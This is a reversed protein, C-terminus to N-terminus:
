EARYVGLGTPMDICLYEGSVCARGAHQGKPATNTEDNFTITQRTQGTEGSLLWVNCGGASHTEHSAILVHDRTLTFTPVFSNMGGPSRLVSQWVPRTRGPQTLDFKQVALGNVSPWWGSRFYSTAQAPQGGLVLLSQKAFRAEVAVLHHEKIRDTELTALLQGNVLSFLEVGGEQNGTGVAVRGLDAGLLARGASAGGSRTWLPSYPQGIDYASLDGDALVVLMGSPSVLYELYKEARWRGMLRGDSIRICSLRKKEDHRLFVVGNHAEIPRDPKGDGGILEVEWEKAGSNIDMSVVKGRQGAVILKGEGATMGVFGSIGLEKHKKPAWARKATDVSFGCVHSDTALALVKDGSGRAVMVGAPSQSRHYQRSYLEQDIEVLGMWTIADEATEASCDVAILRNDRLALPQGNLKATKGDPGCLLAIVDGGLMVQRRFEGSTPLSSQPQPNADKLADLADISKLVERVTGKVEAFQIKADLDPADLTQVTVNVARPQNRKHFVVAQAVIARNREAGETRNILDSLFESARGLRTPAQNPDMSARRYSAEAASYIAENAHKSNPWRQSIAYLANPDGQTKAESLAEAAQKDFESYIDRGHKKILRRIYRNAITRAEATPTGADFRVGGRAKDGIKLDVIRQDGYEAALEQAAKLAETPQNELAYAIRLKMHAKDSTSRAYKMAERFCTVMKERDKHAQNGRAVYARYLDNRLQALLASDDHKEAEARTFQLDDLAEDLRGSGMALLARRYLLDLRKEVSDAQKARLTLTRRGQDYDTYVSVGSSNAAVLVGDAAVLNGLVGEDVVRVSSSIQYTELDLRVLRGIGSAFVAEPTVAPRGHIDRVDRADFLERGDLVNLVRLRNGSLLIRSSDLASLHLQGEPNKQWVPQGNQSNLAMIYRGDAPMCIIRGRAAIIPNAPKAIPNSDFAQPQTSGNNVESDYQYAWVSQGTQADLAIVAGANTLVYVKGDAVAPPTGLSLYYNLDYGSRPQLPPMQCVTREWHLKGTQAEFCLLKYEQIYSALVYLKGDEYTPASIFKCANVVDTEGEENGALWVEKGEQSLSLAILSSTDAENEGEPQGFHSRRTRPARFDFVGFVMGGGVTLAHRRIDRVRLKGPAGYSSSDRQQKVDFTRWGREGMEDGATGSRLDRAIIAEDTQYIVLGNKVVPHIVSPVVWRKRDGSKADLYTVGGETKLKNGHGALGRNLANAQAVFDGSRGADRPSVWSPVLVVDVPSMLAIGDSHAGLGRWEDPASTLQTMTLKPSRSRVEQVFAVLLREQGGWNAKADPYKKKLEAVAQGSASKEGALHNAIAIKALLVDRRYSEDGFEMVRRWAFAAQSFRGRDFYMAALYELAKAGLSTNVYQDVLQQMPALRGTEQAETFLRRAQPDYLSRYLRLGKPDMGAIIENARVRLSIYQGKHKTTVYGGKRRTVLAQLLDIAQDYDEKEALERAKKLYGSLEEDAAVLVTSPLPTSGRRQAGALGAFLLICLTAVVWHARRPHPSVDMPTTMEAM